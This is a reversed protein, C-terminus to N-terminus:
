VASLMGLSKKAYAIFRNSKSYWINKESQKIAAKLYDATYHKQLATYLLSFVSDEVEENETKMGWFLDERKDLLAKLLRTKDIAAMPEFYKHILIYPSYSDIYEIMKNYKKEHNALEFCFEIAGTNYNRSANRAKSLMKTRWKKKEEEDTMRATIYLYDEFHFTYPFLQSLVNALGKENGSSKYLQKLMELYPINYEERYNGKIQELCYKEALAYQKNEILLGILKENYDNSWPIPKFFNSYKKFLAYQEVISFVRESYGADSPAQQYKKVITDILQNRRQENSISIINQLHQLYHMRIIGTKSTIHQVFYGVAATWLTEDYINALAETTNKLLMGIYGPIKKSNINLGANLIICNEILAHFCLFQKEDAMGAQYQQVIPAHIDTWLEIIKKLQTPDITKKNKVVAKVADLTIKQIEETSYQHHKASFHHIFALEIDPNKQLLNKIWEKLEHLSADELLGDSKNIKIKIKAPKKEKKVGAIFLLLATKHRCFIQSNKCDCDANVINGNKLITIAVDYSAEGEDVFAIYSGKEIEDCERVINKEALKLIQAPLTTAYNKLNLEM